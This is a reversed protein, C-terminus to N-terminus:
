DEKNINEEDVSDQYEILGSIVSDLSKQLEEIKPLSKRENQGEKDNELIKEKEVEFRTGDKLLKMMDEFAKQCRAFEEADDVRENENLIRKIAMNRMLEQNMRINELLLEREEKLFDESSEKIEKEKELSIRVLKLAEAIFLTLLKYDALGELAIRIWESGTDFGVLKVSKNDKLITSFIYNFKKTFDDVNDFTKYEPLKIGYIFDYESESPLTLQVSKISVVIKNKISFFSDPLVVENMLVDMSPSKLLESIDREFNEILGIDRLENRIDYISSIIKQRKELEENEELSYSTKLLHELNLLEHYVYKLRTTLERNRMKRGKNM